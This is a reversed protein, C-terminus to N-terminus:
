RSRVRMFTDYIRRLPHTLRWSWSAHLADIHRSQAALQADSEVARRAAELGALDDRLCDLTPELVLRREEDLEQLERRRADIEILAAALRRDPSSSDGADVTGPQQGSPTMMEVELPVIKRGAKNRMFAGGRAEPVDGTDSTATMM